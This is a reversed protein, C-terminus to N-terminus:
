FNRPPPRRGGPLGSANEPLPVTIKMSRYGRTSSGFSNNVLRSYSFAKTKDNGPIIIPIAKVPCVKNKGKGVFILNSDTIRLFYSTLVICGVENREIILGTIKDIDLNWGSIDQNFAFAGGFMNTIDLVNGMNWDGIYKNFEEAGFFMSSTNEVNEMNWGSIDQNFNTSQYFMSSTNTVNGMNWDGIYKNFEEAGFFMDSTNTVNGMSWDGIYKNFAQAGFFMSSTNKVNEMNWGSIDENFTTKNAFANSMNTVASVDWDSIHGYTNHIWSNTSAVSIISNFNSNTITM